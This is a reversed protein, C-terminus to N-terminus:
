VEDSWDIRQGCSSCYNPYVGEATVIIGLCDPCVSFQMIPKEDVIEKASSHHHQMPSRKLLADFAMGYAKEKIEEYFKRNFKRRYYGFNNKECELFHIAEKEDM